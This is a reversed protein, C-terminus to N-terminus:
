NKSLLKALVPVLVVAGAIVFFMKVPDKYNIEREVLVVEKSEEKPVDVIKIKEKKIAPNCSVLSLLFASYFIKM